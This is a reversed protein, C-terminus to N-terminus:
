LILATLKSGDNIRTLVERSMDLIHALPNTSAHREQQSRSELWTDMLRSTMELEEIEANEADQM